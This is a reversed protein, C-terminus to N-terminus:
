EDISKDTEISADSLADVRSEDIETEQELEDIQEAQDSNNEELQEIREAQENIQEQMDEILNKLVTIIEDSDANEFEDFQAVRDIPNNDGTTNTSM